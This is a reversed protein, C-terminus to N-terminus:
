FAAPSPSGNITSRSDKYEYGHAILSLEHDNFHHGCFLLEVIRTEFVGGEDISEAREGTVTNIMLPVAVQVFAQANCQDCRDALKLENFEPTKTM